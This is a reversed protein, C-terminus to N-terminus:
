TSQLEAGVADILSWASGRWGLLAAAHHSDATGTLVVEDGGQFVGTVTATLANGKADLRVMKLQGIESGSGIAHTSSSPSKADKNVLTGFTGLNIAANGQAMNIIQLGALQIQKNSVQKNKAVQQRLSELSMNKTKKNYISQM